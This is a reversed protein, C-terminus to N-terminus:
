RRGEIGPCGGLKRFSDVLMTGNETRGNDTNIFFSARTECPWIHARFALVPVWRWVCDRDECIVYVEELNLFTATLDVSEGEFSTAHDDYREFQLRKISAAVPAFDDFHSTGISVTDIALNLWVYQREAEGQHNLDSFKKEYLGHKRAERCTQLTAPTPTCSILRRGHGRCLKPDRQIDVVRVDVTRPMVTM